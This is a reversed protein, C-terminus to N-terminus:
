NVVVTDGTQLQINQELRKGKCVKGYDFKITEQKGNNNRLIVINDSDAFPSLGGAMSLAQMVNIPKGVRYEGPQAVKGIVYVKFSNVQLVMVTVVPDPVYASIGETLEEQLQKATRGSAQVDGVLPFSIKGDPRVVVQKTLAEDKWVSIELLDEPGLLYHNTNEVTEQALSVNVGPKACAALILLLPLMCSSINKMKAGKGKFRNLLEPQSYNLLINNRSIIM